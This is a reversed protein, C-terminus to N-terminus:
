RTSADAKERNNRRHHAFYTVAWLVVGIGLMIGAIKYEDVARGSWPGVLFASIVAGLIPVITPARFHRHEVPKRRLVLVAINVITFVGLLLLSTTGGLLAVNAYSTLCIAIAATFVIAVWPTRRLPAVRGFVKPIVGERSMGYTLRSAMLMNILASNSVAFVGIVSFLWLPFGPASLELVRLLAGAGPAEPDDGILVDIPAVWSSLLAVAIYISAAVGMGILMARPFIRPNTTEEAMNVSDEFGVMAFFALSTGAVVAFFASQGPAPEIDVVRSIDGQGGMVAMVSVVIIIFLGTLEILTFVVNVWVSESVGRLNVLAFVVLMAAAVIIIATETDPLWEFVQPLYDTAAARAASGASTLGSSMVTFAVMFTLFHIGFAKQTYLAAGAARPYKGVLELYSFATLFAAIFAVAFPIWLAGGVKVAVQGTLAYIGTGLIDGVIFLLLLGPGIARKLETPPPEEGNTTVAPATPPNNPPTTSM